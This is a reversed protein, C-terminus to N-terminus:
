RRSVDHVRSAGYATLYRALAAQYDGLSLLRFALDDQGPSRGIISEHSKM